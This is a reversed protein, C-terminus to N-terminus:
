LVEDVFVDVTCQSRPNRMVVGSHRQPDPPDSVERPKKRPNEEEWQRKSLGIERRPPLALAHWQARLGAQQKEGPGGHDQEEERDFASRAHLVVAKTRPRRNAQEDARSDSVRFSGLM